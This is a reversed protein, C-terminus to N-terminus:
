SWEIIPKSKPRAANILALLAGDPNWPGSVERVAGWSGDKRQQQMLLRVRTTREDSWANREPNWGFYCTASIYRATRRPANPTYAEGAVRDGETPIYESESLTVVVRQKISVEPGDTTHM